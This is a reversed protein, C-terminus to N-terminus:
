GDSRGLIQEVTDPYAGFSVMDGNPPNHSADNRRIYEVFEDFHETVPLLHQGDASNSLLLSFAPGLESAVERLYAELSGDYVTVVVFSFPGSSGPRPQLNPASHDLILFWTYHLTSVAARAAQLTEEQSVIIQAMKAIDADEKLPIVMTLPTAM